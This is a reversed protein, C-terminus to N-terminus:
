RSFQASGLFDEKKETQHSQGDDKDDIAGFWAPFFSGNESNIREKEPGEEKREMKPIRYGPAAERM